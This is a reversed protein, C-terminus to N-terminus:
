WAAAHMWPVMAYEFPDNSFPMPAREEPSALLWRAVVCRTYVQEDSTPPDLGPLGDRALAAAREVNAPCLALCITALSTRRRLATADGKLLLPETFLWADNPEAPGRYFPTAYDAIITEWPMAALPRVPWGRRRQVRQLRAAVGATSGGSMRYRAGFVTPTQAAAASADPSFLVGFAQEVLERGPQDDARSAAWGLIEARLKPPLPAIFAQGAEPDALLLEVAVAPVARYFEGEIWATTSYTRSADSAAQSEPKPALSPLLGAAAAPDHRAERRLSILEAMQALEENPATGLAIALMDPWEAWFWGFIQFAQVQHYGSAGSLATQIADLHQMAEGGRGLRQLAATLLIEYVATNMASKILPPGALSQAVLDEAVKPHTPQLLFALLVTTMQKQDSDGFEALHPLLKVAWDPDQRAANGLMEQRAKDRMWHEGLAAVQPWSLTDDYENLGVGVAIWPTGPRLQKAIDYAEALLEGALARDEAATRTTLPQVVLRVDEAGGDAEAFARDSTGAVAVIQNASARLGSLTFRGDAGTTVPRTPVTTSFVVAQAVPQGQQDVVVGSVQQDTRWLVIPQVKGSVMDGQALIGRQVMLWGPAVVEVSYYTQEDPVAATISYRGEPDTRDQAPRGLPTGPQPRNSQVTVTIGAVPQGQEDVVQGTLTYPAALCARAVLVLVVGPIRLSNM